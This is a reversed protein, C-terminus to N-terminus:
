TCARSSSPISQRFFDGEKSMCYAMSLRISFKGRSLQYMYFRSPLANLVDEACGDLEPLSARDNQLLSSPSCNDKDGGSTHVIKCREGIM